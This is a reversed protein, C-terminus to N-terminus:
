ARTAKVVVHRYASVMGDGLSGVNPIAGLGVAGCSFTNDSAELVLRGDHSCRIAPGAVEMRLTYWADRKAAFDHVGLCTWEGDVCKYLDLLGAGGHIGFRYFNHADQVRAFIYGHPWVVDPHSYVGSTTVEITYDRWESGGIVALQRGGHGRAVGSAAQWSGALVRWGEMGAAFDDHYLDDPAFDLAREVEFQATFGRDGVRATIRLSSADAQPKVTCPLEIRELPGLVVKAPMGLVSGEPWLRAHLYAEVTGDTCNAACIRTSGQNAPSVYVRDPGSLSIADVVWASVTEVQDGAHLTITAEGQTAGAPVAIEAMCRCSGDPAHSLTAPAEGWPTSLHVSGETSVGGARTLCFVMQNVEGRLLLPTSDRTIAYRTERSFVLLTAALLSRIRAGIGQDDRTIELEEVGSFDGSLAYCHRVEASEPVNLRVPLDFQFDTLTGSSIQSGEPAVVSVLIDGCPARFINGELGPPLELAHASLVWERGKLLEFLPAYKAELHRSLPGGQTASPYYGCALSTKLKAETTEPTKDYPLCIMPRALGLYQLVQALPRTAEAMLGDVGRTVEVSSPGNAWVGKGQAHVYDCLLRVLREQTLGLVSCPRTGIMTIGDDHAYDTYTYGDCDLFIGEIQPFRELLARMQKLIYQGWRGAPDPNLLRVYRWGQHPVGNADRSIEEPFYKEAYRYWAEFSQLYMYVQIGCRHWLAIEGDMQGYSNMQV